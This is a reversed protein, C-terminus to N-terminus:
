NFKKPIIDDIKKMTHVQENSIFRGYWELDGNKNYFCNFVLHNKESPNNVWEEIMDIEVNKEFVVRHSTRIYDVCHIIDNISSIPFGFSNIVDYEKPKKELFSCQLETFLKEKKVENKLHTNKTTFHKKRKKSM